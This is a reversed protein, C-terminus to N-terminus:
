ATKVTRVPSVSVVNVAAEPGRGMLNARGISEEEMEGTGFEVSDCGGSLKRVLVPAQVCTKCFKHHSIPQKSQLATGNRKGNGKRSVAVPGLVLCCSEVSSLYMVAFCIAIM